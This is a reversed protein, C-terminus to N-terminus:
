IKEIEFVFCSMIQPQIPPENTLLVQQEQQLGLNSEWCECVVTTSQLELEQLDSVKGPKWLSKYVHPASVYICAFSEHVCLTFILCGKFNM